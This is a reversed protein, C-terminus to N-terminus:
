GQERLGRIATAAKALAERVGAPPTESEAAALAQLAEDALRRRRAAGEVVGLVREYEELSAEARVLTDHVAARSIGFQQAIEALSLDEGYHLDVAKRQNDTLLPGYVDALVAMRVFRDVKGPKSTRDM